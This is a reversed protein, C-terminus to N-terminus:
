KFLRGRNIRKDYNIFKKEYLKILKNKVQMFKEYDDNSLISKFYEKEVSSDINLLTGELEFIIRKEM